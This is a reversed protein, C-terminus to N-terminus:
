VAASFPNNNELTQLTKLAIQSDESLTGTLNYEEQIKLKAAEKLDNLATKDGAIQNVQENEQQEKAIERESKGTIAKTVKGMAFSGLLGGLFGCAAGIASGIGPCIATGIATGLAVGVQNGAIFGFTDGVVKVASKGLQKIGKKAGLEKFTPYVEFACEFIGSFILMGGAGSSKMLKGLKTSALKAFIGKKATEKAVTKTTEEVAKKTTEEVVEKSGNKFIRNTLKKLLSPFKEKYETKAALKISSYAEQSEKASSIYKILRETLKGEGHFLKNLAIKNKAGLEKMSDSILTNNLKKNRKLLKLLPFGEFLGVTPVSGKLCSTFTDPVDKLAENNTYKILKQVEAQNNIYQVNNVSNVANVM